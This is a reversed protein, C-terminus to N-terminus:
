SSLNRFNTRLFDLANFVEVFKLAEVLESFSQAGIVNSLSGGSNVNQYLYSTDGTVAINLEQYVLTFPVINVQLSTHTRLEFYNKLESKNINNTTTVSM